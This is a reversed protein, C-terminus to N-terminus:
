ILSKTYAKIRIRNIFTSSWWMPWSYLVVAGSKTFHRTNFISPRYRYVRIIPWLDQLINLMSFLIINYSSNCINQYIIHNQVFFVVVCCCCIFFDFMFVRAPAPSQVRSRKCSFRICYGSCWRTLHSYRNYDLWKVTEVCHISVYVFLALNAPWVNEVFVNKQLIKVHM